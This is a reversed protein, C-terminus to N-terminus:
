TDYGPTLVVPVQWINLSRFTQDPLLVGKRKLIWRAIDHVHAMHNTMDITDKRFKHAASLSSLARQSFWSKRRDM